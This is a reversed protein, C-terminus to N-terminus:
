FKLKDIYYNNVYVLTKNSFTKVLTFNEIKSGKKYIDWWEKWIEKGLVYKTLIIYKVQFFDEEIEKITKLDKPLPISRCNVYKATAVVIDTCIIDMPLISTNLSNLNNRIESNFGYNTKKSYGSIIDDIGFSCLFIIFGGIISYKLIRKQFSVKAIEIFYYLGLIIFVPIFNFFYRIHTLYFSLMLAKILFLGIILIKFKELENNKTKIFIGSFFFAFLYLNYGLLNPFFKITEKIQILSKKLIQLPHTLFFNFENVYDVGFWLSHRFPYKDTLV